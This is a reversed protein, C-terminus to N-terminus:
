DEIMEAYGFGDYGFHNGNYFLYTKEKYKVVSPYAMMESDWGTESLKLNLKGDMRVWDIGDESEAYALKYQITEGGGCFFM